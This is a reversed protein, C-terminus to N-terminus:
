IAIRSVIATERAKHLKRNAKAFEQTRRYVEMKENLKTTRETRAKERETAAQQRALQEYREQLQQFNFNCGNLLKRICKADEKNRVAEARAQKLNRELSGIQQEYAQVKQEKRINEYVLDNRKIHRKTLGLEHEVSKKLAQTQDLQNEVTQMKQLNHENEGALKKYQDIVDWLDLEREDRKQKAEAAQEEAHALDEQLRISKDVSAQLDTEMIEFKLQLDSIEKQNEFNKSQTEELEKKASALDEELNTIRVVADEYQHELRACEKELHLYDEETFNLPESMQYQINTNSGADTASLSQVQSSAVTDFTSSEELADGAVLKKQEPAARHKRGENFIKKDKQLLGLDSLRATAADHEKQLEKYHFLVDHLLKEHLEQKKKAMKFKKETKNLDEKLKLVEDQPSAPQELGEAELEPSGISSFSCVTDESKAQKKPSLNQHAPDDTVRSISTTSPVVVTSGDTQLVAEIDPEQKEGNQAYVINKVPFKGKAAVGLSKEMSMIVVAQKECLRTLAANKKVLEDRDYNAEEWLAEQERYDDLEMDKEFLQTQLEVNDQIRKQRDEEIAHIKMKINDLSREPACWSSAEENKEYEVEIAGLMRLVDSMEIVMRQHARREEGLRRITDQANWLEKEMSGQMYRAEDVQRRMDKLQTTLGANELIKLKLQSGYESQDQIELMAELEESKALHFRMDSELCHAVKEKEELKKTLEIVEYRAAGLEQEM